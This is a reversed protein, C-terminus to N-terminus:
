ATNSGVVARRFAAIAEAAEVGTVLRVATDYDENARDVSRRLDALHFAEVATQM